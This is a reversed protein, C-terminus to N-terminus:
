VSSVPACLVAYPVFTQRLIDSTQCALQCFNRKSITTSISTSRWLMQVQVHQAFAHQHFQGWITEFFSANTFLPLTNLGHQDM